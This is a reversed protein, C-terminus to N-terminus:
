AGVGFQGNAAREERAEEEAIRDEIRTGALDIAATLLDRLKTAGDISLGVEAYERAKRGATVEEVELVILGSVGISVGAMTERHFTHRDTFGPGVEIFAAM